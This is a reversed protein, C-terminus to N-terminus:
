RAGSRLEAATTRLLATVEDKSQAHFDNWDALEAGDINPRVFDAVDHAMLEDLDAGMPFRPSGYLAVNIAGIACVRCETLPVGPDTFDDYLVGQVWGVLEIHAAARDLIDAIESRTKDM